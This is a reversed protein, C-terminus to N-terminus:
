KKAMKGSRSAGIAILGAGLFFGLAGLIVKFAVGIPLLIALIIAGVLILAGFAYFIWSSSLSPLKLGPIIGKNESQIEEEVKQSLEQIDKNRLANDMVQKVINKGMVSSQIDQTIVVPGRINTATFNYCGKQYNTASLLLEDITSTNIVSNVYTGMNTILDNRIEQNTPIEFIDLGTTVREIADRLETTVAKQLENVLEQKNVRDILTEVNILSDIRQSATFGGPGFDIDGTAAINVCLDQTNTVVAQTNTAYKSIISSIATTNVNNSIFNQILQSQKNGM